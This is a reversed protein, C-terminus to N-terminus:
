DWVCQRPPKEPPCQPLRGLTSCIPTSTSVDMELITTRRTVTMLSQLFQQQRQGNGSPIRRNFSDSRFGSEIIDEAQQQQNGYYRSAVVLLQPDAARGERSPFQTAEVGQVASPFIPFQNENDDELLMNFLDDTKAPGYNQNALAIPPRNFRWPRQTRRRVSCQNSVSKTCVITSTSTLTELITLRTPLNVAPFVFSMTLMQQRHADANNNSSPKIQEAYYPYNKYPFLSFADSARDKAAATVYATTVVVAIALLSFKGRM